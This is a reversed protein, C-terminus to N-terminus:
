GITNSLLNSLKVSKGDIILSNAGNIIISEYLIRDSLTGTFGEFQRENSSFIIQPKNFGDIRGNEIRLFDKLSTRAYISTGIGFDRFNYKMGYTIVIPINPFNTYIFNSIEGASTPWSTTFSPTADFHVCDYYRSGDRNTFTGGWRLGHEKALDVVGLDIWKQFYQEPKGALLNTSGGPQNPVPEYLSIDLALGYTHPSSLSKSFRSDAVPYDRKYVRNSDIFNRYASNIRIEFGTPLLKILNNLFNSFSTQVVSSVNLGSLIQNVTVKGPTDTIIPVSSYFYSDTDISNLIRDDDVSTEKLINAIELATKVETNGFLKPIAFTRLTTYWKNERITHDVSMIIFDLTKEYNPPLFDTNVTLKDFIRIGSIGDLTISLDAPIFGIFPTSINETLAVYSLGKDFFSIQTNNFQSSFLPSSNEKNSVVNVNPLTYIRAGGGKGTPIERIETKILKTLLEKYESALIRYDVRDQVAELILQDYDLKRPVIRDILGANWTSFVTSDVGVARGQAQAGVSIMTSYENTLSTTFTYDVVFNGESLPKNFGYINFPSNERLNDFLKEREFPQVEDYIEIVQKVTTKPTFSVTVLLQPNDISANPDNETFPEEELVNETFAKETIRLSLKNRKGLLFNIEQLLKELFPYLKLDGEKDLNKKILEELYEVGIYLNMLRGVQVGDVTDHFKPLNPLLNINNVNNNGFSQEFRIIMKKPDSPFQWGNSFCYLEENIDITILPSDVDDYILLKTNIFNLLEGFRVYSVTNNANGFGVRCGIFDTGSYGDLIKKDGETFFTKYTQDNGLTGTTKTTPSSTPTEEPTPEEEVNPPLSDLFAQKEEDTLQNQARNFENTVIDQPIINIATNGQQATQDQGQQVDQDLTVLGYDSVVDLYVELPTSRYKSIFELRDEENLQQVKKDLLSISNLPNSLKLSDIVTGSSLMKLNITYTGDKEFRWDFNHVMGIFADYNAFSKRRNEYIRTHFYTLGKDKGQLFEDKLSLSTIDGTSSYKDETKPYMTNGWEILMHYGLRMYLSEIYQFQVKNNAKITIFAERLTGNNYDKTNFEIIGPMPVLGFETGGMGYSASGDKTSNQIGPLTSTSDAIGFRQSNNLPSGGHLTLESALRNGSYNESALGLYRERFLAGEFDFVIFNEGTEKDYRPVEGGDIDVSSVLRVWGTRGNEWVIDSSSKNTKGLIKQRTKIQDQVYPLHNKGVINNSSNSM